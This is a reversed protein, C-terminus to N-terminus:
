FEAHSIARLLSLAERTQKVDHVRLIAAGAQAALMATQVSAEVRQRPPRDGLLQAFMSKRSVGLLVPGFREVLQGTARLLTLNHELTKGFGIGPDVVLRRAAIGAQTCIQRRQELFDAVESVVDDYCPAQQMSRPAGQMHMLVISVEPHAAMLEVAGEARLANVDNVMGAGAAVADAMLQPKSTDISIPIDLQAALAEIVPVVRRREQELSVTAAGPRTSEGGVDIIDAGEDRMRQAHAVAAAPQLWDGGDSFSDPTVNLVGMILPRELSLQHAGCPLCDTARIM